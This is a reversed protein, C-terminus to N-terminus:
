EIGVAAGHARTEDGALAAVPPCGFYPFRTRTESRQRQLQPLLNHVLYISPGNPEFFRLSIPRLKQLLTFPEPLPVRPSHNLIPLPIEPIVLSHSQSNQKDKTTTQSISPHYRFSVPIKLSPETTLPKIWSGLCGNAHTRQGAYERRDPSTM